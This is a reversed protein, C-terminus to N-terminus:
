KTLFVNNLFDMDCNSISLRVLKSAPFTVSSQSFISTMEPLLRVIGGNGRFPGGALSFFLLLASFTIRILGTEDSIIRDPKVPESIDGILFEGSVRSSGAILLLEGPLSFINL